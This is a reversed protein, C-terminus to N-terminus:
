GWVPRVEVSGYESSPMRAAWDLAADLDPVDVVWYGAFYEKTEAYPGDTIVTEDNRVQVTTAAEPGQLGHNAVFIGAENIDQAYKAWRPQEEKIEDPTPNRDAPLYNMLMYKPM